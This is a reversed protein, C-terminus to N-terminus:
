SSQSPNLLRGAHRAAHSGIASDPRALSTWGAIFIGRATRTKTMGGVFQMADEILALYNRSSGVGRSFEKGCHTAGNKCAASGDVYKTLRFEQKPDKTATLQSRDEPLLFRMPPPSAMQPSSPQAQASTFLILTAFTISLFSSIQALRIRM